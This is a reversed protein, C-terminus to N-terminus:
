LTEAKLVATLTFSFRPTDPHDPDPDEYPLSLPEIAKWDTLADAWGPLAAALAHADAAAEAAKAWTPAYVGVGLTPRDIVINDRGGGLMRVWALPLRGDLDAPLPTCCVNLRLGAQRAAASLDLRLRDAADHSRVLGMM